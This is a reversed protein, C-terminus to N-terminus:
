ENHLSQTSTQKNQNNPINFLTKQPRVQVEQLETQSGILDWHEATLLRMLLNKVLDGESVFLTGSIELSEM